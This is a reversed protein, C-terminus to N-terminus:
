WSGNVDHTSMVYWVDRNWICNAVEEVTNLGTDKLLTDVYAYLSDEGTREGRHQIGYCLSVPESNRYCHGELKMRRQQSKTSLKPLNGYLEM